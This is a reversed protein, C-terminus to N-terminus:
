TAPEPRLDRYSERIVKKLARRAGKEVADQVEPSNMNTSGAIDVKVAGVSIRPGGIVPRVGSPGGRTTLPQEPPLLPKIGGPVAERPRNSREAEKILRQTEQDPVFDGKGLGVKNKMWTYKKVVWNIKRDIRGITADLFKEIKSFIWKFPALLEQVKEILAGITSDWADKIGDFMAKIGDIIANWGDVILDLVSVMANVAIKWAKALAKFVKVAGKLFIALMKLLDGFVAILFVLLKVVYPILPKVIDWLGVLVPILAKALDMLAPKLTTWVDAAMTKMSDFMTGAQSFDKALAILGGIAVLILGIKGMALASAGAMLRLASVGAMVARGLSMFGTIVKSGVVGALAAGAIRAWKKLKAFFIQANNGELYWDKFRTILETLKPLLQAAITNRIGLFIGKVRRLEDNFLEADKSAKSSLVIGLRKAELMLAKIGGSGENLLPIIKAGARGFLEMALATKRTGDPMKKFADAAELLLVDQNKLNGNSDKVQINLEQFAIKQAKLGMSADRARKGLQMLAKAVDEQSAGSIGAAHGLAQYTEVNIGMAKSMKAAADAADAYGTTFAKVVRSGVFAYAAYRLMNATSGLERRFARAQRTAANLRRKVAGVQQDIHVLKGGEVTFGFKTLISRLVPV